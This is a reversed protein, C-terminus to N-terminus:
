TEAKAKQQKINVSSKKIPVKRSTEPNIFGKKIFQFQNRAYRKRVFFKSLKSKISLPLQKTISPPHNSEKQIYIILDYKEKHFPWYTGNSPNVTIDLHDAIKWAANLASLRPHFFLFSSVLFISFIFLYYYIFLFIFFYFFRFFQWNKFVDTSWM